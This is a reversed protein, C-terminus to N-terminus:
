SGDANTAEKDVQEWLAKARREVEALRQKALFPMGEDLAMDALAVLGAVEQMERRHRSM